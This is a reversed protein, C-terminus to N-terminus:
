MNEYESLLINEIKHGNKCEHLNMKYDKINILINELCKLCIIENVIIEKDKEDKNKNDYVLINIKNENNNNMIQNLKLEENVKDGNYIYCLNNDEAKIKNKFKIIIDKMKEEIYCQIKIQKGEFIFIIEEM